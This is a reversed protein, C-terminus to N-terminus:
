LSEGLCQCYENHGLMRQAAFEADPNDSVFIFGKDCSYPCPEKYLWKVNHTVLEHNEGQLIRREKDNKPKRVVKRGMVDEEDGVGVAKYSVIMPDTDYFWDEPTDDVIQKWNKRVYGSSLRDIFYKNKKVDLQYRICEGIRKPDVPCGPIPESWDRLDTGIQNQKQSQKPVLSGDPTPKSKERLSSIVTADPSPVKTETETQTQSHTESHSPDFQQNTFVVLGSLLLQTLSSHLNVRDQSMVSLASLIYQIDSSINAGLRARLRVLGDFLGRQFLTLRSYVPDDCDIRVNDKRWAKIQRGKRDLGADYKTGFDKIALFPATPEYNNKSM